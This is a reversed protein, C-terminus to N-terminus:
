FLRWISATTQSQKFRGFLFCLRYLIVLGALWVCLMMGLTSGDRFLWGTIAYLYLHALYFFLAASGFISLVQIGRHLLPHQSSFAAFLCLNIGITLALYAISPPYKTVALFSIVGTAEAPHLNGFGGNIRLWVFIGLLAIGTIFTLSPLYQERRLWFQGFLLGFCTVAFWPLVPYLINLSNTHGPLTLLRLWIPSLETARSAEPVILNTLLVLSVGTFLWVVAPLWVLCAALIMSAGLAFLVGLFLYATSGGGPITQQTVHVDPGISLAGLLWAPNEILQQILILLAGRLILQKAIATKKWGDALRRHAFLVIGFGMFLFFGPACLHTIYRILFLIISSDYDPLPTGWFEYYHRKAIFFSVHDLAMLVMILGKSADLAAIRRNPEMMEKAGQASTWMRMQKEVGGHRYM